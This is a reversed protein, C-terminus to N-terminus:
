HYGTYQKLIIKISQSLPKFTIVNRTILQVFYNQNLKDRKEKKKTKQGIQMDIDNGILAIFSWSNLCMM